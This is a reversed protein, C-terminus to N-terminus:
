VKIFIKKKYLVWVPIFVILMYLLAYTFSAFKLSAGAASLSDMWHNNLSKGGIELGYFVVTLMGALVYATIANAGYIRGLATWRHYGLVDVILIMAGLGLTTLGAM